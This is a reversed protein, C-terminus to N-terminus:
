RLCFPCNALDVSGSFICLSVHEVVDLAAAVRNAAVRYQAIEVRSNSFLTPNAYSPAQFGAAPWFASFKVLSGLGRYGLSM